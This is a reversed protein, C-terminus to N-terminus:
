GAAPHRARDTEAGRAQQTLVAKTLNRPRDVEVGQKSAMHCAFMATTVKLLAAREQTTSWGASSVM